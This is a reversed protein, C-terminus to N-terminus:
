SVKKKYEELRRRQEDREPGPPSLEVAREQTKVAAGAQGAAAQARALAALVVPDKSGTVEAARQAARLALATDRVPLGPEDLVALALSLLADPNDRLPGDIAGAAFASARDADRLVSALVQFKAVSWEANLAPDLDIIREAARLAGPGDGARLADHFERAVPATRAAVERRRAAAAAEAAVDFTGDVIQAVALELGARPQGIWAVRGRQDVVFATPIARAGSAGMWARDTRGQEDLALTFNVRDGQQSAFRELDVAGGHEQSAVALVRLGRAAHARQVDSLYPVSRRCPQCWTAWFVVVYVKGPEFAEVPEGRVWQRIFLRPAPSNIDLAPAAAPQAATAPPAPPQALAPLSGALAICAAATRATWTASTSM